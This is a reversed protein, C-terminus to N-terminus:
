ELVLDYLRESREKTRVRVLISRSLDYEDSCAMGSITVNGRRHLRMMLFATQPPFSSAGSDGITKVRALCRQRYSEADDEQHVWDLEVSDDRVIAIMFLAEDGNKDKETRYTM